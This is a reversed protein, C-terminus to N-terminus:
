AAAATGERRGMKGGGVLFAHIDLSTIILLGQSSPLCAPLKGDALGTQRHSKKACEM